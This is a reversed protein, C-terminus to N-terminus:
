IQRWFWSFTEVAGPLRCCIRRWHGSSPATRCTGHGTATTSTASPKIHSTRQTCQSRFKIIWNCDPRTSGSSHWDSCVASASLRLHCYCTRLPRQSLSSCCWSCVELGDLGGDQLSSAWDLPLWHLDELVPTIHESRSVGSVRRAAMNQVSQLKQLYVKAM